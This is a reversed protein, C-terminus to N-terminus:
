FIPVAFSAGPHPLAAPIGAACCVVIWVMALIQPLQWHVAAVALSFLSVTWMRSASFLSLWLRPNFRPDMM